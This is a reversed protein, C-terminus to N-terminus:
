SMVWAILRLVPYGFVSDFQETAVRLWRPAQDTYGFLMATIMIPVAVTFWYLFRLREGRAQAKEKPTVYRPIFPNALPNAPPGKPQKPLRKSAM